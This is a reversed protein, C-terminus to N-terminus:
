KHKIKLKKKIFIIGVIIIAPSLLILAIIGYVIINIILSEAKSLENVKIEYINENNDSDVVKLKIIDNNKLNKFETVEKDNVYMLLTADKETLEYSYEFSTENALISVEAKNNEFVVKSTGFLFKKIEVIKKIENNAKVRQTEEKRNVILKYEKITGTEAIAKIIIENNGIILNINDFEVKTNENTPEIIIEIDKQNTEYNMIDKIAIEENNIKIIKLSTDDSKEVKQNDSNVNQTQTINGSSSNNTSSSTNKNNNSPQETPITTNTNNNENQEPQPSPSPQQLPEPQTQTVGSILTGSSDYMEGKYNSYTNGNHCHYEGDTLGWQSCNTNNGNCKHCGSSDTRGPHAFVNNPLFLLSIVIVKIIIKKYKM